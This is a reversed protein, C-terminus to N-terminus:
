LNKIEKKVNIWYDGRTLHKGNEDIGEIDGLANAAIIEKIIEEVTVIACQKHFALITNPALAVYRGLIQHAKEEPTM